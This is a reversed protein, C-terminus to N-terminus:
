CSRATLICLLCGDPLPRFKFTGDAPQLQLLRLDLLVHLLLQSQHVLCPRLICTPLISRHRVCVLLVGLM